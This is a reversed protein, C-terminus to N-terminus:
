TFTRGPSSLAARLHLHPWTLESCLLMVYEGGRLKQRDVSSLSLAERAFGGFAGGLGEHHAPPVQWTAGLATLHPPRALPPLFPLANRPLHYRGTRTSDNRRPSTRLRGRTSYRPCCTACASPACSIISASSSRSAWWRPVRSTPDAARSGAARPPSSPPPPAGRLQPSPRARRQHRSPSTSQRRPPATSSRRMSRQLPSCPFPKSPARPTSPSLMPLTQFVTGM